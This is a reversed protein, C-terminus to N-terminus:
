RGGAGDYGDGGSYINRSRVPRKRRRERERERERVFSMSRSLPDDRRESEIDSWRERTNERAPSLLEHLPVESM